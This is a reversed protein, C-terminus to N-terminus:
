SRYTALSVALAAAFPTSIWSWNKTKLGERNFLATLYGETRTEDYWSVSGDM